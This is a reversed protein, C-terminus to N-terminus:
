IRFVRFLVYRPPGTDVRGDAQRNAFVRGESMGVAPLVAVLEAKVAKPKANVRVVGQQMGNQCCNADCGPGGAKFPMSCGAARAGKARHCHPTCPAKAAMGQACAVRAMVPFGALVWIVSLAVVKAYVKM